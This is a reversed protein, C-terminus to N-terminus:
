APVKDRTGSVRMVAVTDFAAPSAPGAVTRAKNKALLEVTEILMNDDTNVGTGDFQAQTISVVTGQTAEMAAIWTEIETEEEYKVCEIAFRGGGLGLTQAGRGSFGPVAWTEMRQTMGPRVGNITDFEIDTDDANTIYPADPM